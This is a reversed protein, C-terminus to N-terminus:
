RGGAELLEAPATQEWAAGLRVEAEAWDTADDLPLHRWGGDADRTRLLGDRVEAFPEGSVRFLGDAEEVGPMLLAIARVHALSSM